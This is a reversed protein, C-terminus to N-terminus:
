PQNIDVLYRFEATSFLTLFWASWADVRIDADKPNAQQIQRVLQLAGAREADTVGRGLAWRAALDVRASDDAAEKSSLLRRAAHKSQEATFASNRLYLAQAAVNTVPRRGSVLSSSPFDFLDFLEPAYDRIIPLYISRHNDPPNIKEPSVNRMVKDGMVTVASGDPCELNLQGSVTLVADRIAEAEIRRPTARWLLRNGPDAKLNKSDVSSSLQYTRSLLITRIMRKVSWGESMFRLALADLLQPHSPPKGIVGFNDVSPVLGRGFLHHWIRNVMVRATLPNKESAIWDALELRGSHGPDIAPSDAVKVASLFGRSVVAGQNRIDGRIAIPADAPKARDRASMAYQPRPPMSKKLEAVKSEFASLDAKLQAVEATRQTLLALAQDLEAQDTPDVAPQGGGDSDAGTNTANANGANANAAQVIAAEALRDGAEIRKRAAQKEAETATKLKTRNVALLNETKEIKKAHIEAAAHLAVANPGIPLLDTPNGSGEQQITGWLPETSLFIGALSYYDRTPIPDFKHDHCRACSVTLAMMARSVTNIQDDVVDMRFELGGSSQRKAGFSLISPAIRRAEISDLTENEAAPLLDGAIQERLFVDYPKDQNVADIVYNRYPWAHPYTVNYEMGSSEAYRVVDLWHRGWREGFQPSELLRDILNAVAAPSDDAVFAEVEQPSPPLGVLDFFLRRVLTQRNADAVPKLGATEMRALIFHDIVDRPWDVQQVAPSGVSKPYQYSWHQQAVKDWKQQVTPGTEERSDPAGLRIWKEFIEIAEDPLRGKPPMGSLGAEHRLVRILLSKKADHAILVPGTDGGRRMGSPSDLRLGGSIDDSGSHCEYCYKVLVPKIQKEFLKIGATDPQGAKPEACSAFSEPLLLFVFAVLCFPLRVM